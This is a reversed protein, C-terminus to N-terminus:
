RGDWLVCAGVVRAPITAERGVPEDTFPADAANGIVHDIATLTSDLESM